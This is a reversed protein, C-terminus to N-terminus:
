TNSFACMLMFIFVSVSLVHDYYIVIDKDLKDTNTGMDTDLDMYIDTNTAM